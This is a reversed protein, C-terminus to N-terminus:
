HLLIRHRAAGPLQPGITERIHLLHDVQLLFDFQRRLELNLIPCRSMCHEEPGLRVWPHNRHRVQLGELRLLRSHHGVLGQRRHHSHLEGLGARIRRLGELEVQMTHLVLELAM